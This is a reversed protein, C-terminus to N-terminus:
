SANCTLKMLDRRVQMTIRHHEEKERLKSKLQSVTVKFEEVDVDSQPGAKQGRGGDISRPSDPSM